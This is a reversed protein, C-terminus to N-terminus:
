PEPDLDPYQKVIPRIFAENVRGIIDGLQKALAKREKADPVGSIAIDLAGLADDLSLAALLVHEAPAKDM